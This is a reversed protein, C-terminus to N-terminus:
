PRQEQKRAAQSTVVPSALPAGSVAHRRVARWESTCAAPRGMNVRLRLRGRGHGCGQGRSTSLCGKLAHRGADDRFAVFRTLVGSRMDLDLRYRQVKVKSLHFWEGDGIRFTLPLWNPVNVLDETEVSHGQVETTLRDYCGALYTGPYHVDDACAEPAAARTVFYGNGVACLAERQGEEEPVFGRYTLRFARQPIRRRM